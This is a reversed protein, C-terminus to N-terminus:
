NESVPPLETMEPAVVAGERARVIGEVVIVESGDLGERIVRYGDIRPGPRVPLSSVNGEDDVTRVLRRNQDAVIASDPVLIGEYPLSGPVNVRGFLGPTLLEDPNDLVARIRMTGTQEDLRNESFDLVGTQPPIQRDSLTVKVELGGGGEQLSVGRARADRAYALFYREDIDFYFYIPDSSVITTLVTDNATVLNGPDVLSQDIRGAMPARIQSYEVDLEALELAARTQELEGQASLFAERREDVVSQPINGNQILQEARELQEEAFDFTARAVDIQSQAQRLATDFQRRDISFLLQGQEVLSGDTFHVEQLYGSVRARMQVEARAGFRGVFEDDEVITKVVPNAVTVPPPGQQATASFAFLALGLACLLRSFHTM